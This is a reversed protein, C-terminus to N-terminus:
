RGPTAVEDPEDVGIALTTWRARPLPRIWGAGAASSPRGPSPGDHAPGVPLVMPRHRVCRALRYRGVGISILGPVPRERARAGLASGADIPPAPGVDGARRALDGGVLQREAAPQALRPRDDREDEREDIMTARRRGEVTWREDLTGPRIAAAFGAARGRRREDDEVEAERQAAQAPREQQAAGAEADADAVRGLDDEDRPEDVAEHRGLEAVEVPRVQELDVARDDSLRVNPVTKMSRTRSRKAITTSPSAAPSSSSGRRAAARLDLEDERDAEDDDDHERTPRNVIRLKPRRIM